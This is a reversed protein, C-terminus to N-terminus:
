RCHGERSRRREASRAMRHLTLRRGERHGRMALQFARVAVQRVVIGHVVHKLLAARAHNVRIM